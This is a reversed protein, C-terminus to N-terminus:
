TTAVYHLAKAMNQKASRISWVQRDSSTLHAQTFVEDDSMRNEQEEMMHQLYDVKAFQALEVWSTERSGKSYVKRFTRNGPAVQIYNGSGVFTFVQQLLEDQIGSIYSPCTKSACQQIHGVPSDLTFVLWVGFYSIGREQPIPENKQDSGRSIIAINIDPVAIM